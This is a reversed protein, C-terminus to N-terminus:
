HTASVEVARRSPRMLFVIPILLLFVWTLRRFDDLVQQNDVVRVEIVTGSVRASVPAVRAEVFADDTSVHTQWYRWLFVGYGMGGLLLAAVASLVLLRPQRGRPIAPEEPVLADRETM